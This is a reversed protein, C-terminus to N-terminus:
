ANRRVEQCEYFRLPLNLWGATEFAYLDALHMKNIAFTRDHEEGPRDDGIGTVCISNAHESFVISPSGLGLATLGSPLAWGVASAYTTSEIWFGHPRLAALAIKPANM